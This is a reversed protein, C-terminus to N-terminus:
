GATDQMEKLSMSYVAGALAMASFLILAGLPGALGALWGLASSALLAIGILTNSLAVYSARTEATAIDVIHTKRGNRVGAHAVYLLFLAVAYIIPNALNASSLLALGLGTVGALAGGAAMVKRSSIDSYRGWFPSSVFSAIAGALLLGGFSAISGAGSKQALLVFYPAALASGLLCTRALIYDRLNKDTKLLKFQKKAESLANGGGDTEGPQEALFAYLTAAIMWLGAATCLMFAIVGVSREGGFVLWLALLIAAGGALSDAYGSVSGRRTKSITKGVVDKHTVSCVGRSLSFLALFLIISFGANAGEMTFATFAIALLALAQGVSGSCWLWKRIALRRIAAAVALQPLLSLAERM